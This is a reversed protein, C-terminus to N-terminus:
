VATPNLPFVIDDIQDAPIETKPTKLVLGRPSEAAIVFERYRPKDPSATTYIGEVPIAQAAARSAPLAVGLCALTCVFLRHRMAPDRRHPAVGYQTSLVGDSNEAGGGWPGPPFFGGGRGAG